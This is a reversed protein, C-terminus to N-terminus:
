QMERYDPKDPHERALQRFIALSEQYATRAQEPQGLLLQAYGLGSLTKGVGYRYEKVQPFERALQRCIALAEEYATRAAHLEGIRRVLPCSNAPTRASAFRL